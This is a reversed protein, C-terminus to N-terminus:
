CSAAAAGAPRAEIDNAGVGDLVIATVADQQGSGPDAIGIAGVGIKNGAVVDADVSKAGVGIAAIADIKVAVRKNLGTVAVYIEPSGVFDQNIGIM